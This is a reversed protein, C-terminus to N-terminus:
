APLRPRRLSPCPRDGAPTTKRRDASASKFVQVGLFIRLAQSALSALSTSVDLPKRVSCPPPRCARPRGIDGAPGACAVWRTSLDPVCEGRRRGTRPVAPSACARRAARGSGRQDAPHPRCCLWPRAPNPSPRTRGSADPEACQLAALDGARRHDCPRCPWRRRGPTAAMKVESFVAVKASSSFLM